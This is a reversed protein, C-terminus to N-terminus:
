YGYYLYLYYLLSTLDESKYIDANVKLLIKHRNCLGHYVMACTYRVKKCGSDTKKKYM